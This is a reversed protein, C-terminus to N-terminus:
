SDCFPCEASDPLLARQCRPCAVKPPTTDLSAVGRAIGAIGIVLGLLGLTLFVGLGVLRLEGEGFVLLPLGVGVGVVGTVAGLLVLPNLFVNSTRSAPTPVPTLAATVPPLPTNPPLPLVAELARGLEAASSYRDAPDKAMAKLVIAELALPVGPYHKSPPVPDGKAIKVVLKREEEDYFPLQGTLCEYLIVGLSYVDSRADMPKGLLQEKSMYIVTGLTMGQQTLRQADVLKATGFDLLKAIGSPHVLINSPKVDRHIMQQGHAFHMGDCIQVFWPVCEAAPIPGTRQLRAELDEGEAYDMVIYCSGAEDIFNKLGIINPHNLRGLAQAERAFRDRAAQNGVLTPHLSKIAVKQGLTEHQGLYVTGMGGEGLTGLLVYNGVRRGATGTLVMDGGPRSTPTRDARVRGLVRELVGQPPTALPQPELSRTLTQLKTDCNACGAIHSALAVDDLLGDAYLLLSEAKPCPHM